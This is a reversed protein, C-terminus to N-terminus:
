GIVAVWKDGKGDLFIGLMRNAQGKQIYYYDENGSAGGSVISWNDKKVSDEYFVKLMQINLGSTKYFNAFNVTKNGSLIEISLYIKSGPVHRLGDNFGRFAGFNMPTDVRVRIVGCGRKLGCAAILNGKGPADEYYIYDWYDPSGFGAKVFYEALSYIFFNETISYNNRAVLSYYHDLIKEASKGSVFKTIKVDRGNIRASIGGKQVAGPDAMLFPLTSGSFEFISALSAASIMLIM